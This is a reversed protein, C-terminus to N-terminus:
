ALYFYLHYDPEPYKCLIGSLSLVDVGLATVGELRTPDDPRELQGAVVRAELRRLRLPRQAHELVVV